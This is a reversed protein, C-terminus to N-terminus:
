NDTLHNGSSLLDSNLLGEIRFYDIPALPSPKEYLLLTEKASEGSPAGLRAEMKAFITRLLNTVMEVGSGRNNAAIEEGVVADSCLITKVMRLLSVHEKHQAKKVLFDKHLADHESVNIARLAQSAGQNIVYVPAIPAPLPGPKEIFAGQDDHSKPSALWDAESMVHDLLTRNRDAGDDVQLFFKRRFEPFTTETIRIGGTGYKGALPQLLKSETSTALM